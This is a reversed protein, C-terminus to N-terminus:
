SQADRQCQLEEVCEKSRLDSKLKVVEKNLYEIEKRM